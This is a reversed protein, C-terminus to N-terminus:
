YRRFPPSVRLGSKGPLYIYGNPRCWPGLGTTPTCTAKFSSLGTFILCWGWTKKTNAYQGGRQDLILGVYPDVERSIYSDRRIVICNVIWVFTIWSYIIPSYYAISQILPICLPARFTLLRRKLTHAIDAVSAWSQFTRPPVDDGKFHSQSSLLVFHPKKIEPIPHEIFKSGYYPERTRGIDHRSWTHILVPDMSLPGLFLLRCSLRRAPVHSPVIPIDWTEFKPYGNHWAAMFRHESYKWFALKDLNLIILM